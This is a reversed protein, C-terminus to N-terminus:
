WSDAGMLCSSSVIRPKPPLSLSRPGRGIKQRFEAELDSIHWIQLPEFYELGKQAFYDLIAPLFWGMPANKINDLNQLGSYWNKPADACQAASNDLTISYFNNIRDILKFNDMAQGKDNLEKVRYFAQKMQFRAFAAFQFHWVAGRERPVYKAKGSGPTRNEHMTQGDFQLGAQDRFIFDKPIKKWISNDVRIKTPSKWTTLWDLMLKEGPELRSLWENFHPLLHSTFAEDADLCVFHTGGRSRGWDLLETRWVSNDIIPTDYKKQRFSINLHKLIALSNDTSSTDLVLIEDVFKNLQPLTTPLIWGENKVLLLAITKM